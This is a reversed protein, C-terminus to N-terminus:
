SYLRDKVSQLTDVTETKETIILKIGDEYLLDNNNNQKELIEDLPTKNSNIMEDVVLNVFNNLCPFQELLNSDWKSKWFTPVNFNYNVKDPEFFVFGEEPLRWEMSEPIVGQELLELDQQNKSKRM